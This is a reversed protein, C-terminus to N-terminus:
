PKISDAIQLMQDQYQIAQSSMSYAQQANVMQAMAMGMDVNSAELAGSQLTAGPVARIAGSAASASFLSNGAAVLGNPAPVTVIQIKGVVTNGSRVTGNPDISLSEASVGKPLTIPPQLAMGLQTALQGQANVELGGNRTLGITGDPRRVQLYGEGQISVDLPRGTPNIAGQVQSRGMVGSATGAGTGVMTGSSSGATTYLLDHFGVIAGQYGPTSVNALDNSITDFQQQQAEMGSAAAYLGELMM